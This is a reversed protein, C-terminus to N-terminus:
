SHIDWPMLVVEFQAKKCGTGICIRKIDHYECALTLASVQAFEKAPDNIEPITITIDGNSEAKSVIKLQKAMDLCMKQQEAKGTNSKNSFVEKVTDRMSIGLAISFGFFVLAFIMLVAGITQNAFKQKNNLPNM